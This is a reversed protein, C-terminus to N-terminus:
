KGKFVPKRKERRAALAEKYDETKGLIDVYAHEKKLGTELTLESSENILSKMYALGIPSKDALKTVLNETTRALDKAPVAYDVLGIKQAEKGSILDGTLLLQKAKKIGILKPLRFSSGGSPVFGPLNIHGDGIKCNNEAIIFDCGLAIEFGGALCYGQIVAITIKSFKEIVTFVRDALRTFEAMEPGYPGPAERTDMGTCFSKGAGRIVTVAIGPENGIDEMAALIELLTQKGLANMVRPKNLTIWAVSEKKEVIIEADM